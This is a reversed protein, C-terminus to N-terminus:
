AFLRLATFVVMGVVITGLMSRRWLFWALGCLSAYLAHNSFAISLGNPTSLLDPVVVSVLAAAPAYRLARQVREPLIMREGGILFLARTFGTILAMGAIALWVQATTM